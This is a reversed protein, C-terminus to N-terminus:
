PAVGFKELLVPPLWVRLVADAIEVMAPSVEDEFRRGGAKAKLNEGPHVDIDKHRFGLDDAVASKATTLVVHPPLQLGISNFWHYHWQLPNAIADNYWFEISQHPILGMFIIYRIALWQCMIPLERAIFDELKGVHPSGHVQRHFYSSVAAPRPDRFVAMQLWDDTIDCNAEHMCRWLDEKNEVATGDAFKCASKGIHRRDIVLDMGGKHSYACDTDVPLM